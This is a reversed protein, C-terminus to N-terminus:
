SSTQNETFNRVRFSTMGYSDSLITFISMVICHRSKALKKLKIMSIPKLNM